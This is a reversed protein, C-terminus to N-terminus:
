QLASHLKDATMQTPSQIAKVLVLLADKLDGDMESSITDEIDCKAWKSYEPFMAQLQPYSRTTFIEIFCDEDTGWKKIGAEILAEADKHALDENIEDSEDRKGQLLKVLLDEFDGSTDGKVDDELTTDYNKKYVEKIDNIEKNSRTCLISILADEDTGFGQLM